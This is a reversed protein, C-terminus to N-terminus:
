SLCPPREHWALCGLHDDRLPLLVNQLHHTSGRRNRKLEPLASLYNQEAKFPSEIGLDFIDDTEPVIGDPSPPPAPLLLKFPERQHFARFFGGIEPSGDLFNERIFLAATTRTLEGGLLERHDKGDGALSHFLGTSRHCPPRLPLNNVLNDLAPDDFRDRGAM